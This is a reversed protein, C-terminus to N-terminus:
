LNYKNATSKIKNISIINKCFDDDDFTLNELALNIFVSNKFDNDYSIYIKKIIGEYYENTMINMFGDSIYKGILENNLFNKFHKTHMYISMNFDNYLRKLNIKIENDSEVFNREKTIKLFRIYDQKEDPDEPDITGNEFGPVFDFEESEFYKLHKM